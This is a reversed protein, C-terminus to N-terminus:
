LPTLRGHSQNACIAQVWAVVDLPLAGSILVPSTTTMVSSSKTVSSSCAAASSSAAVAVGHHAHAVHTTGHTHQGHTDSLGSLGTAPAAHLLLSLIIIGRSRRAPTSITHATANRLPPQITPAHRERWFPMRIESISDTVHPEIRARALRAQFM